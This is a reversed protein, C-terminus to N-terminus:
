IIRGNLLSNFIRVHKAFFNAEIIDLRLTSTMFEIEPVLFGGRASSSIPLTTNWLVLCNKPLCQSFRGFVKDLNDKYENIANQGYRTIDWLCSNIILIDPLPEKKLDNLISEMYTNYCRTIFYFRVLHNDTQFQRVERYNIGNCMEGKRGGEILKDNMFNFEGKNRLERETLFRNEHLLLVIDKYIGRQISDGIIVIFRNHLITSVETSLFVMKVKTIWRERSDRSKINLNTRRQRLKYNFLYRFGKPFTIEDLRCSKFSLLYFVLQNSALTVFKRQYLSPVLRSKKGTNYSSDLRDRHHLPPHIKVVHRQLLISSLGSCHPITNCPLSGGGVCKVILVTCDTCPPSRPVCMFDRIKGAGNRPTRLLYDVTSYGDNMPCYKVTHAKKGTASCLPCIFKALIPCTIEGCENKLLHTSYVGIEEKNKKCFVCHKRNGLPRLCTLSRRTEEIVNSKSFTEDGTGAQDSGSNKNIWYRRRSQMMLIDMEDLDKTIGNNHFEDLIADIAMFPESELAANM